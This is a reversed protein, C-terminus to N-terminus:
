TIVLYDSVLIYYNNRKTNCNIRNHYPENAIITKQKKEFFHRFM